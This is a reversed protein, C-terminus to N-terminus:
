RSSSDTVWVMIHVELTAVLEHICHFSVQWDNIACSPISWISFSLFSSWCWVNESLRHLNWCYSKSYMTDVILLPFHTQVFYSGHFQNIEHNSWLMPINTIDKPLTDYYPKYFSDEKEMDELLFNAMYIHKVKDFDAGGDKLGKSLECDRGMDCSIIFKSPIKVIREGREVDERMYM